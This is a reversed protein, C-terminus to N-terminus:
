SLYNLKKSQKEKIAKLAAERQKAETALSLQRLTLEKERAAIAELKATNASRQKAAEAALAMQRQNAQLIQNQADISRSMNAAQYASDVAVSM